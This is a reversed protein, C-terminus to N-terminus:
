YLWLLWVVNNGVLFSVLFHVGATLILPLLIIYILDIRERKMDYRKIFGKLNTAIILGIAVLELLFLDIYSVYYVWCIGCLFWFLIISVATSNVLLYSLKPKKNLRTIGAILVLAYLWKMIYLSLPQDIVRLVGDPSFRKIYFIVTVRPANLYIFFFNSM